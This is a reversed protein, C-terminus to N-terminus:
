EEEEYIEWDDAFIADWDLHELIIIEFNKEFTGWGLHTILVQRGFRAGGMRLATCAM